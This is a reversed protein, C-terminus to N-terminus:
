SSTAPTCTRRPARAHAHTHSPPRRTPYQTHLHSPPVAVQPSVPIGESSAHMQTCTEGGGHVHTQHGMDAGGYMGLARGTGGGRVAHIFNDTLLMQLFCTLGTEALSFRHRNGPQNVYTSILSGEEFSEVLVDPKVLPFLPRPFSVNPWLRFNNRFRELHSAEVSLDLQEKLPGGFQRISEDLRLESVGPLIAAAKAAREMLVFDTHMVAEVGPHRVKVAVTTGPRVHPGAIAAGRASLRARHIQAISGSAVPTPDFADFIFALPQGFSAEVARISYASDHSPASSQLRELARCVDPAFLDPRTAAWQGWKSRTRAHTHTHSHTYRKM